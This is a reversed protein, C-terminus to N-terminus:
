AEFQLLCYSLLIDIIIIVNYVVKHKLIILGTYARRVGQYQTSPPRIMRPQSASRVLHM